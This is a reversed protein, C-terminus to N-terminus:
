TVENQQKKMESQSANQELFSTLYVWSSVNFLNVHTNKQSIVSNPLYGTPPIWHYSVAKKVTKFRRLRNAAQCSCILLRAGEGPREGVGEAGPHASCEPFLSPSPSVAGWVDRRSAGIGGAMGLRGGERGAGPVRLPCRPFLSSCVWFLSWIDCQIM